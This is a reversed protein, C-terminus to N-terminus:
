EEKWIIKSDHPNMKLFGQDVTYAQMASEDYPTFLKELAAEDALPDLWLNEEGEHLIVPMRFNTNHIYRMM